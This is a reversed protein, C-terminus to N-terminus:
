EMLAEFLRKQMESLSFKEEVLERGRDGFRLGLLRDSYLTKIARALMKSDDRSVLFGNVGNEVVEPLGGADTAIIPKSCAAAQIATIGLAERTSPLVFLDFGWLWRLFNEKYGVLRVRDELNYNKILWEVRRRESGEGVIVLSCDTLERALLRFARLLVHLGKDKELKGIFGVVFQKQSKIILNKEALASFIDIQQRYAELDIGEHVVRIKEPLVGAGLLQTKLYDSVVIVKAHVSLRCYKQRRRSRGLLRDLDFVELWYVRFGLLKALRTLLFKETATTFLVRRFGRRWYQFLSRALSLFFIPWLLKIYIAHRVGSSEYPSWRRAVGHGRNKFESFVFPCSTLLQVEQGERLLGDTLKILYNDLGSLGSRAPFKYVLIKSQPIM